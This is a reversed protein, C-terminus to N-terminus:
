AGIDTGGAVGPMDVATAQLRHRVLDRHATGAGGEVEEQADGRQAVPRHADDALAVEPATRDARQQSGQGLQPHPQLRVSVTKGDGNVRANWAAPMYPDVARERLPDRTQQHQRREGALRGRDLDGALEVLPGVDLQRDVHQALEAQVNGHALVPPPELDLRALLRV